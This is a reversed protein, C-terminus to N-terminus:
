RVRVCVVCVREIECVFHRWLSAGLQQSLSRHLADLQEQLKDPGLVQLAHVAYPHPPPPPPPPRGPSPLPVRRRVENRTAVNEIRLTRDGFRLTSLTELSNYLSPSVCVILCTRANGGLSNQAV